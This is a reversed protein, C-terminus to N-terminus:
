LRRERLEAPLPLRSPSRRPQGGLLGRRQGRRARIRRYGWFVSGPPNTRGLRPLSGPSSPSLLRPACNGAPGWSGEADWRGTRAAQGHHSCGRCDLFGSPGPPAEAENNNIIHTSKSQLTDSRQHEHNFHFPSMQSTM